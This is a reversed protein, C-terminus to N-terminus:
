DVNGPHGNDILFPRQLRVPVPSRIVVGRCRSSVVISRFNHHSVAVIQRRQGIDDVGFETSGIIDRGSIASMVILEREVLRAEIGAGSNSTLLAAM